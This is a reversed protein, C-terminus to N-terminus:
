KALNIVEWWLSILMQARVDLYRSASNMVGDYNIAQLSQNIWNRSAARHEPKSAVILFSLHKMRAIDMVWSVNTTSPVKPYLLSQCMNDHTLSPISKLVTEFSSANLQNIKEIVSSQAQDLRNKLDIFTFPTRFTQNGLHGHNSRGHHVINFWAQEQYTDMMNPWVFRSVFSQAGYTDGNMDQSETFAKWQLALLPLNIMIVALGDGRATFDPFPPLPTISIFPHTLVKVSQQTKWNKYAQEVDFAEEVVIILESCHNGFFCSKKQKFRSFASNLGLMNTIQQTRYSVDDVYERNNLSMSTNLAYLLDILIHDASCFVSSEAYYAKYKSLNEDNVRKIMPWESYQSSSFIVDPYTKFFDFM